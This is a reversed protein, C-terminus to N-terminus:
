APTEPATEGDSGGKGPELKAKFIEKDINTRKIVVLSLVTALAVEDAWRSLITPAYKNLVKATVPSLAAKEEPSLKWHDGKRAAIYDFPIALLMEVTAPDLLDPAPEPVPGPAPDVRPPFEERIEHELTDPAKPQEGPTTM